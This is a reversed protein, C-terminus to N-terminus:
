FKIKFYNGKISDKEEQTLKRKLLIEQYKIYGAKGTYIYSERTQSFVKALYKEVSDLTLENESTEANGANDIADKKEM